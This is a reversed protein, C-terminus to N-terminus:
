LPFSREDENTRDPPVFQNAPPPESVAATAVLTEMAIPESESLPSELPPGDPKPEFPLETVAPTAAAEPAAAAVAPPALEPRSQARHVLSLM